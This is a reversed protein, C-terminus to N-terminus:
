SSNARWTATGPFGFKDAVALLFDNTLRYQFREQLRFGAQLTMLPLPRGFRKEFREEPFGRPKGITESGSFPNWVFAGVIHFAGLSEVCM